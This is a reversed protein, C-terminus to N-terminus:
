NLKCTSVRVDGGIRIPPLDSDDHDAPPKLFPMAGPGAYLNVPYLAIPVRNPHRLRSPAM